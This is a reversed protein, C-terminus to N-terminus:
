GKQTGSAESGIVSRIPSGTATGATTAGTGVAGANDTTASATGAAAGAAAAAAAEMATGRTGAPASAAAAAAAAASTVVPGGGPTCHVAMVGAESNSTMRSDPANSSNRRAMSSATLPACPASSSRLQTVASRAALRVSASIGDCCRGRWRAAMNSRYRCGLYSRLAGAEACVRTTGAESRVTEGMQARTHAQAQGHAVTCDYSM